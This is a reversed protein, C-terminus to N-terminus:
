ICLCPDEGFRHAHLHQSKYVFAQIRVSVSMDEDGRSHQFSSLTISRKMFMGIGITCTHKLLGLDVHGDIVPLLM